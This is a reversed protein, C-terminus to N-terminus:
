AQARSAILTAHTEKVHPEVLLHADPIRQSEHGGISSLRLIGKRAIDDAQVIVARDVNAVREALPLAQTEGADGIERGLHKSARYQAIRQAHLRQLLPQRLQALFTRRLKELWQAVVVQNETRDPLQLEFDHGKAQLVFVTDFARELVDIDMGRAPNARRLRLLELLELALSVLIEGHIMGSRKDVKRRGADIELEGQFAPGADTEVFRTLM